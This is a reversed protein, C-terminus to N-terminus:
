TEASANFPVLGATVFKTGYYSTPTQLYKGTRREMWADAVAQSFPRWGCMISSGVVKRGLDTPCCMLKIAVEEFGIDHVNAISPYPGIMLEFTAPEFPQCELMFLRRELATNVVTVVANQRVKARVSMMTM